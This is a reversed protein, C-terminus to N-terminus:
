GGDETETEARRENRRRDVLKSSKLKDYLQNKHACRVAARICCTHKFVCVM